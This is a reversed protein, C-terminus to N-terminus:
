QHSEATLKRSEATAEVNGTRLQYSFASLQRSIM